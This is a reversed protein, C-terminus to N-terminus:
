AAASLAPEGEVAHEAGAHQPARLVVAAIVVALLVLAAAVLYALHFGSNLAAAEAAGKAVESSTRDAALTALVALGIAGGVQTTTNVLGSALGADSPTADAMALMMIAPTALGAGVGLLIAM